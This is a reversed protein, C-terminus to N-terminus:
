RRAARAARISVVPSVQQRLLLALGTVVIAQVAGVTESSVAFGYGTVLAAIATVLTTFVAPAVPRVTAAKWAGFVATIAAVILAAQEASLGPAGLTVALSLSASITALWLAPERGWIM